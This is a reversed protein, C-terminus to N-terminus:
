VSQTLDNEEILNEVVDAMHNFSERLTENEQELEEIRESKEERETQLQAELEEVRQQLDRVDDARISVEGIAMEFAKEGPDTLGFQRARVPTGVNVRGTEEILGEDELWDIDARVSEPPNLLLKIHHDFSGRAVGSYDKIESTNAEGGHFRIARLIDHRGGSIWGALDAKSDENTSTAAM